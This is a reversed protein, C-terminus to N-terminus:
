TWDPEINAADPLRTTWMIEPPKCGDRRGSINAIGSGRNVHKGAAHIIFKLLPLVYPPHNARIIAGRM